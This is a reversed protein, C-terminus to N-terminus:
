IEAEWCCLGLTHPFDQPTGSTKELPTTGTHSRLLHEALTMGSSDAQSFHFKANM